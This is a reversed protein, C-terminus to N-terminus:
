GDHDEHFFRLRLSPSQLYATMDTFDSVSKKDERKEPKNCSSRGEGRRRKEGDKCGLSIEAPSTVSIHQDWIQDARQKMLELDDKKFGDKFRDV